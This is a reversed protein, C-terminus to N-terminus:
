FFKIFMVALAYLITAGLVGRAAKEFKIRLFIWFLALNTFVCLSMIKILAHVRWMSKVYDPFSISNKGVWYVLFFVIVPLTLGVALGFCNRNLKEKM